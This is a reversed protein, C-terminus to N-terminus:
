KEGKFAKVVDSAHHGVLLVALADVWEGASMKGTYVMVTAITLGIATVAKRTTLWREGETM